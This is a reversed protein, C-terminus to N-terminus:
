NKLSVPISVMVSTLDVSFLHMFMNGWIRSLYLNEHHYYASKTKIHSYFHLNSDMVVGLNQSRRHNKVNGILASGQDKTTGGQSWFVIVENEDKNLRLFSHCM